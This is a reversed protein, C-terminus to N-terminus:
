YHATHTFDYSNSFLKKTPQLSAKSLQWTKDSVEYVKEVVRLKASRAAPNKEIEENTPSIPKKTLIKLSAYGGCQCLPAELPCVCSLSFQKFLQKVIRDELSHFTIVGMRGGIKLKKIGRQLSVSLLDLEQNVYIRLGQFTKTAPAIKEYYKRKPLAATVVEYLQFATEIKKQERAEVIKRAVRRARKEEGYHYIIDCIEKEAFSNVVDAASLPEDRDLRMDLSTKDQFSFGRSADKFHYMSIGLDYFLYDVQHISLVDLIDPMDIFHSKHLEVNQNLSLLRKKARSLIEDDRDLGILLGSKIASAFAVSHGGEGITCDILIADPKVAFLEMVEDVMIPTHSYKKEM